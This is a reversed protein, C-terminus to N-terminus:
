DWYDDDDDYYEGEDEEDSWEVENDENNGDDIKEIIDNRDIKKITEKDLEIEEGDIIKEYSHKIEDLKISLKQLTKYTRKFNQLIHDAKGPEVFLNERLQGFEDKERVKLAEHLNDIFLKSERIKEDWAKSVLKHPVRTIASYRVKEDFAVMIVHRSNITIKDGDMSNIRYNNRHNKNQDFLRVNTGETINSIDNNQFDIYSWGTNPMLNGHVDTVSKIEYLKSNYNPSYTTRYVKKKYKNVILTEKLVEREFNDIGKRIKNLDIDSTYGNEAIAERVLIRIRDIQEPDDWIMDAILYCDMLDVKKRGNIFASTRLVKIIKKWRRDSVYIRDERDEEANYQKILMRIHHIVKIVENGVEIDDIDDRWKKYEDLTIQIKAPIDCKDIKTSNTIMSAFSDNDGINEVVLRILFRDWLAELGQNKAPLENSAAILGVLPVEIEQPGNRFVKENIITLLTNQISPGAKWIEDLFAINASPLYSEVNRELRDEERLKSISIPGFIEEPTSFRSMLYEFSTSDKFASKLRRAILSKAVGPPGLLFVSEGSMTALFVKNVHDQREHLGDNLATLISTFRERM